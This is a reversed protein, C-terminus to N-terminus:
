SYYEWTLADVPCNVLIDKDHRFALCFSCYRYKPKAVAAVAAVETSNKSVTEDSPEPKPIPGAESTKQPANGSEESHPLNISLIRQGNIVLLFIRM